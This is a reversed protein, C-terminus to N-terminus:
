AAVAAQYGPRAALRDFYAKAHPHANALVGTREALMLTYGMMVDAATFTDGLLHSREAVTEEVAALCVLARNKADEAVAAIREAPPKFVTHHLIDGLPRAFTAEAFWCWQQFIASEPTGPSPALRGQGYRDLIYQVMAGSEFMTLGDDEMAPVKGTPSIARWDATNRFAPSFDITEVTLPVDLEACLWIVRVGRTGPAHYLKM